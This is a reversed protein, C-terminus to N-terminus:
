LMAKLISLFVTLTVLSALYLSYLGESILAATERDLGLLERVAPEISAANM